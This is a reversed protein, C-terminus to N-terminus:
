ANKQRHTIKKRKVALVFFISLLFGLCQSRTLKRDECSKYIAFSFFETRQVVPGM